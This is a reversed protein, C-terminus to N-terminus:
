VLHGIQLRERKQISLKPEFGPDALAHWRSVVAAGNIRFFSHQVRKFGRTYHLNSTQEFFKIKTFHRILTLVPGFSPLAGGGGSIM